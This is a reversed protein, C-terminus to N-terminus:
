NDEIKIIQQNTLIAKLIEMIMLFFSVPISAYAWAASIGLMPTKQALNITNLVFGVGGIFVSVALILSLIIILYRSVIKLNSPLKKILFILALHSKSRLALYTGLFTVWVFLLMSFEEAWGIGVKLVYRAFVNFFVMVLLIGVLVVTLKEVILGFTITIKEFMNARM